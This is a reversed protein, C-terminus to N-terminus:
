LVCIERSRSQLSYSLCPLPLVPLTPLCSHPTSVEADAANLPAHQSHLLTYYHAPLPRYSLCYCAPWLGPPVQDSPRAMWAPTYGLVRFFFLALPARSPLPLHPFLSLWARM